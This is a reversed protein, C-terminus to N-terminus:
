TQWSLLAPALVRSLRPMFRFRGQELQNALPVAQVQATQLVAGSEDLLSMQWDYLRALNASRPHVVVKEPISLALVPLDSKPEAAHAAVLLCAEFPAFTRM